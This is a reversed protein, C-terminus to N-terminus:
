KRKLKPKPKPSAKPKVTKTTAPAISVKRTVATGAAGTTSLPTLTLVNSSAAASRRLASVTSQPVTYRVDNNGPRLSSTGLAAGGLSAQLSGGGSSQVILRIQRTTASLKLLEPGFVSILPAADTSPAAVVPTNVGAPAPPLLASTPQTMDVTMSANVVFNAGNVTTSANPLSLLGVSGSWTCTDWPISASATSGNVALPIASGGPGTWYFTPKSLTGAPITVSLSLTAAYCANTTTGDGRTLEVYRTALHDVPVQVSAVTGAKTGTSITDYPTPSLGQLASIGYSHTLEVTTWANYVDGLTTGHAVLANSLGTMASGASWADTLVEDIFLTGFREALYEYFPWRSLGLDEYGTKSCNAADTITSTDSWCDLTMDSPGIDSISDAPYGLIKAAAWQAAGAPLWGDTVGALFMGNEIDSFVDWDTSIDESSTGVTGSDFYFSGDCVYSSYGYSSLDVVYVDVLGSSDVVPAPFGLAAYSAYAQEALAALDGAETQTIYDTSSASDSYWIEFHASSLTVPATSVIAEQAAQPSCPLPTPAALARESLVGGAAACVVVACLLRRVGM